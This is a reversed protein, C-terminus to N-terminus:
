ICQNLSRGLGKLVERLHLVVGPVCLGRERDGMGLSKALLVKPFVSAWSM